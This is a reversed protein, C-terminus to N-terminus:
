IIQDAVSVEYSTKTDLGHRTIELTQGAKFPGLDEDFAKILSKSTSQLLKEKGESDKFKYVPVEDGNQNMSFSFGNYKGIFSEGDDLKLFKSNKKGWESLKGM